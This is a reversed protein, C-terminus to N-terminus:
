TYNLILFVLYESAKRATLDVAITLYGNITEHEDRMATVALSVPVRSGNKRVYTWERTEAGDREAKHVFVRFGEVPQGYEASLERSRAAMEDNLHFSTPTSKDILEAAAYGLMREAGTNFVRIVGERDTAIIAVESASRLVNGLLLNLQRLESTRQVVQAELSSNLEHIKTEAAVQESIDRVTKSAGVVQGASNRIPSVTISVPILQGNKHQRQTNFSTVSRGDKISALIEEEEVEFGAPVVLEAIRQGIAEQASFGLLKEAGKNWSSVKGDLDKGIIGDVSSEVIAALKAQEAIIQVKRTRSISLVGVLSALLVSLLLGVALVLLPSLLHLQSIFLPHIGFQL